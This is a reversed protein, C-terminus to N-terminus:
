GKARIGKREGNEVFAKLRDGLLDGWGAHYNSATQEGIDGVARHDLKLVCGGEAPEIEFRVLGAVAGSMGILGSLELAKNPRVEVVTAWIAGGGDPLAERLLGGPRADLVIDTSNQDYLYPAGWWEGLGDTLAQFVREPSALIPVEQVVHISRAADAARAQLETMRSEGEAIERVRYLRGAWESEYSRIWREYMERLPVANLHNWVERGRKRAAVLGARQLVGLHKIVAFRTVSFRDCLQGTTLPGDRLHDLIRRRTPEALAKFVADM